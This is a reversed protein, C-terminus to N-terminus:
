VFKSNVSIWLNRHLPEGVGNDVHCAYEGEDALSVVELSLSGNPYSSVGGGALDLIPRWIGLAALFLIKLEYCFIM